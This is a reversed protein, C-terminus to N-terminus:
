LAGLAGAPQARRRATYQLSQVQPVLAPMRLRATTITATPTPNCLSCARTTSTAVRAFAGVPVCHCITVKHTDAHVSRDEPEICEYPVIQLERRWVEAAPTTGPFAPPHEFTWDPPLDSDDLASGDVMYRTLASNATLERANDVMTRFKYGRARRDSSQVVREKRAGAVAVGLLLLAALAALVGGRARAAHRARLVM